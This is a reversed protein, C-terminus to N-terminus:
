RYGLAAYPDEREESEMFTVPPPPSPRNMSLIRKTWDLNFGVLQRVGNCSIVGNRVNFHALLKEMEPKTRMISYFVTDPDIFILSEMSKLMAPKGIGLKEAILEIEDASDAVIIRIGTDNM